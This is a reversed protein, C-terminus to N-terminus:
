TLLFMSAARYRLRFMDGSFGYYEPINILLDYVPLVSIFPLFVQPLCVQKVEHRNLEHRDFPNRLMSQHLLCVSFIM